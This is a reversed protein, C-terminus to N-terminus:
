KKVQFFIRYSVSFLSFCKIFLFTPNEQLKGFFELIDAILSM